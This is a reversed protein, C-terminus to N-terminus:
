PCAVIMGLQVAVAACQLEANEGPISSKEFLLPFFSGDLQAQRLARAGRINKMHGLCVQVVDLRRTKVAMSAMQEWVSDSKIFKIAKFADDMQGLSLYLSFDMMAKRTNEDCQELGAFERLTRAVILRGITKEGRIEEDDFESQFLLNSDLSPRVRKLFFMQPVTVGILKECAPSVKILDHLQIGNEATVFM